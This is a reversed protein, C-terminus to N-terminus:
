HNKRREAMRKLTEAQEREARTPRHAGTSAGRGQRSANPSPHPTPNLTKSQNHIHPGGPPPGDPRSTPTAGPRAPPGGPPRADPGGPPRANPGGPPTGDPGGPPPPQAQAHERNTQTRRKKELAEKSRRVRAKHQEADRVMRRSFIIGDRNRSYVGHAGLHEIAWKCVQPTYPIYRHIVGELSGNPPIDYPDADLGNPGGPPLGPPTGHAPASPGGPPTGLPTGLPGGPATDPPGNPAPAPPEAAPIDLPPPGASGAPGSQIRLYGYPEGQAMVCLMDVWAARAVPHCSRLNLDNLHDNVFFMLFPKKM